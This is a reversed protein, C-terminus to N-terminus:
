NLQLSALVAQIQQFLAGTQWVNNTVNLPTSSAADCTQTTCTYFRASIIPDIQGLSNASLNQGATFSSIGTIIAEDFANTPNAGSELHVFTLYPYQHQSSTPKTYAFQTSTQAVTASGSSLESLQAAAPRISIVARASVTGSSTAVDSIPSTVTIPQDTSNNNSSPTVSWNSPYAFALNLDSGNSTYPTTTSTSQATLIPTQQTSTTVTPSHVTTHHLFHWCIFGAVILVVCISSGLVPMLMKIPRKPAKQHRTSGDAAPPMDLPFSELEKSM